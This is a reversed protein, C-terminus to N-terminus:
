EYPHIKGRIIKAVPVIQNDKFSLIHACCNVGPRNGSFSINRCIGQYVPMEFLYKKLSERRTNGEMLGKLIPQISDYGYLDFRGPLNGIVNNYKRNFARYQPSDKDIYFDTIIIMDDLIHSNERLKEINNWDGNGFVRAYINYYDLQSIIMELNESKVPLFVADISSIKEGFDEPDPLAFESSDMLGTVTLVERTKLLYMKDKHYVEYRASDYPFVQFGAQILWSSDQHMLSNLSDQMTKIKQQLEKQAVEVAIKRFDKFHYGLNEPTGSYWKQSLLKIGGKDITRSFADTIEVGFDGGPSLTVLDKTNTEELCYTGLFRGLNEFDVNAQFGYRGLETIRSNTATPTIFPTRAQNAVAAVGIANQSTLPGFIAKVKPNEVLVQCQKVSRIFDGQNDMVIAAIDFNRNSKIENIAYKVGQLIRTAIQSRNGSLPLIVGIYVKEKHVEELYKRTSEYQMAIFKSDEAYQYASLLYKNANWSQGREHYKEALKLMLYPKYFDDSITNKLKELDDVTLFIDVLTNIEELARDALQPDDFQKIVQLYYLLAQSYDKKKFQARAISYRVDDLYQSRTYETEFKYGLSLAQEIKGIRLYTKILMM